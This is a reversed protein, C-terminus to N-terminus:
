RRPSSCTTTPWSNGAGAHRHGRRGPLPRLGPGGGPHLPGHDAGGRGRGPPQDAPPPRRGLPRHRDEPDPPQVPVHGRQLGRRHAQGLTAAALGGAARHLRQGAHRRHGGAPHAGRGHGRRHAPLPPGRHGHGRPPAHRQHAQPADAPRPRREGRPHRRAAGEHAPLRGAPDHGHRRHGPGRDQGGAPRLLRRRSAGRGHLRHGHQRQAAAPHKPGTRARHRAHRGPAAAGAARRARGAQDLRPPVGARPRAPSGPQGRGGARAAHLPWQGLRQGDRRPLGGGGQRGGGAPPTRHGEIFREVIM